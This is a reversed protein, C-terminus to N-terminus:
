SQYRGFDRTEVRTLDPLVLLGAAHQSELLRIGDVPGLAFAATSLADAVMASSAIVTASIAAKSRTAPIVIHDDLCHRREYDGSTCVAGETLRLTGLITEPDRPHQVGISWPEGEANLGHVRLDGGAEVAAGPFAALERWALDIALGKAIAGLDLVLPRSVTVHHTSPDLSVDRFSVPAAAVVRERQGTCYNTDFGRRAMEAGVTPDFAGDTAEAVACAFRLAEFLMPSIEIDEGVRECLRRVESSPDFRSCVAEVTQFWAMARRIASHARTPDAGVVEVSVHTDMCIASRVISASILRQEPIM